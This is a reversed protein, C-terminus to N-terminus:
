GIGIVQVEPGARLHQFGGAAEMAEHLPRLRDEGVAAPILNEAEGGQSFDGGFADREAGVYVARGV